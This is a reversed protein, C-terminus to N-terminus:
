RAATAKTTLVTKAYQDVFRTVAQQGAGFVVALVLMSAVSELGASVIGSGVIMVGVVGTLAGLVLKLLTQQLPVNFPSRTRPVQTLAPIATLFAGLCGFVMVVLLLAWASV